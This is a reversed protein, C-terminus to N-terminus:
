RGRPPDLDLVLVQWRGRDKRLRLGSRVATYETLGKRKAVRSASRVESENVRGDRVAAAISMWVYSTPQLDDLPDDLDVLDSGPTSSSPKFWPEFGEGASDDDQMKKGEAVRKATAVSVGLRDAISKWSDGRSRCEEVSKVWQADVVADVQDRIFGAVAALAAPDLVRAADDIESRLARITSSGPTDNKMCM